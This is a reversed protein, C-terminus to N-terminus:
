EDISEMRDSVFAVDFIFVISKLSRRFFVNSVTDLKQRTKEVQRM